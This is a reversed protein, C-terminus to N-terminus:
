PSLTPRRVMESFYSTVLMLTLDKTAESDFMTGDKIHSNQIDDHSKIPKNISVNWSTENWKLQFIFFPWLCQKRQRFPRCLSFFSWIINDIVPEINLDNFFCCVVFMNLFLRRYVVCFSPMAKMKSEHYDLLFVIRFYNCRQTLSAARWNTRNLTSSWCFTTPFAVRTVFHFGVAFYCVSVLTRYFGFEMVSALESSAGFM